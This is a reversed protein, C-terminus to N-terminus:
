KELQKFIRGRKNQSKLGNINISIIELGHKRKRQAMQENM